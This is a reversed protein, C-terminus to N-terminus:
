LLDSLKSLKSLKSTDISHSLHSLNSSQSSNSLNSQNPSNFRKPSNPSSSTNFLNSDISIKSVNISNLKPPDIGNSNVMSTNNVFSNYVPLNIMSSNIIPTKNVPLNIVSTKNMSSNIMNKDIYDLENLKNLAKQVIVGNYGKQALLEIAIHQNNAGNEIKYSRYFSGNQLKAVSFSMNKFKTPYKNALETLESFHTTVIMLNNNFQSLYECVGYSASVGEKPNTGTFLEDMVTFVYQDEELNEVVNCYEICRMLEAEFLSEKNRAINPIDLYTFIYQFPTFQINSCPAVGLTQSLLIVLMTNRIYTSKGSTNPGTLIVNNPEEITSGMECNNFVQDTVYPLFLNNINIYPGSSYKAFDFQPFSYGYSILKSISIFSDIIGVYQLISNFLKEHELCNQKLLVISGISKMKELSYLQNIENLQKVILKKENLLFVDNKYIQKVSNVLLGIHHFKKSFNDCKKYHTVSSDIINYMQYFQYFVYTTALINTLLSILNEGSVILTLIYSIFMKYGNYVSTFYEGVTINVNNYRFIMYILLYVIIIFVPSYIKLYNKASIVEQINTHTNTICMDQYEEKNDSFLWNINSELTKIKELHKIINKKNKTNTLIQQLLTQRRILYEPTYYMTQFLERFKTSGYITITNDIAPVVKNYIELDSLLNNQIHNM